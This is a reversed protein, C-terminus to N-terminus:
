KNLNDIAYQAQEETFKEGADSTLQEKIADPSMSQQSQYDKAKKLANENWNAKVHDVAYQAAEPKFKEGADSTLQDYIGAKSMHMTNSYTEAKKLASTYEVPVNSTQKKSTQQESPQQKSDSESSAGLVGGIVILLIGVLAWFGLRKYFPKKQVYVNGNEDTIKKSM